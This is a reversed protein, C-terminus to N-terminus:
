FPLEEQMEIGSEEEFASAYMKLVRVTKQLGPGVRIVKTTRRYSKEPDYELLGDDLLQDEVARRSFGLSGGMARFWKEAAQYAVDPLLYVWESDRWGLFPQVSGERDRDLLAMEGSDVLARIATLYSSSAKEKAIREAMEGVLTQAHEDYEAMRAELEAEAWAGVSVLWRGMTWFALRNQAVNSALRGPNTTGTPCLGIFRDRQETLWIEVQGETGPMTQALWSTYASMVANLHHAERQALALAENTGVPRTLRLILMRSIVSAENEPIDEGTTILAGRIWKTAQITADRNLRGRGRSESYNQIINTIDASRVIRPKYDDVLFLVDKAQHGLVEIKKWTSGWKETPEENAFEPGFLALLACAYSTKLSGTEGVLHLAYRKASTVWRYLPALFAHAVAPYTVKHEFAELLGDLLARLGAQLDGAAVHYRRCEAEVDCLGPYAGPTLFTLVGNVMQWGTSLYRVETAFGNSLSQIALPLHRPVYIIARAGAREGIIARCQREDRFEQATIEAVWNRDPSRGVLHYIARHEDGDIEVVERSLEAAFNTIQTPIWDVGIRQGRAYIPKAKHYYIENDTTLTYHDKEEPDIPVSPSRERSCASAITALAEREELGASIAPALLAAEIEAQDYGNGAMDAAARFLRDNREGQGAGHEIFDRTAHALRGRKAVAAQGAAQGTQAPTWEEVAEAIQEPTATQIAALFGAQDPQAKWTSADVFVCRKNTKRHVGLPVKVLNGYDEPALRDQKPFVEAHIGAMDGEAEAVAGVAWEGLRRMHSAPCGDPCFVWLHFGKNGTFEIYVPLGVQALTAQLLTTMRKANDRAHPTDQDADVDICLWGVTGDDRLQYAGLTVQGDLHEQLRKDTLPTLARHPCGACVYGRAKCEDSFRHDCAPSYGVDGNKRRWQEAHRDAQYFFLRRLVDVTSM